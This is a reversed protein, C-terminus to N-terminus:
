PTTSAPVTVMFITTPIKDTHKVRLKCITGGQKVLKFHLNLSRSRSRMLVRDRVGDGLPSLWLQPLDSMNKSILVLKNGKLLM